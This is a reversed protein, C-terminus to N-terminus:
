SALTIVAKCPRGITGTSLLALSTQAIGLADSQRPAFYRFAPSRLACVQGQYETIRCYSQPPLVPLGYGVIDSHRCM